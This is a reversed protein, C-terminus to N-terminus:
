PHIAALLIHSSSIFAHSIIYEKQVSIIEQYYAQKNSILLPYNLWLLYILYLHLKNTIRVYM